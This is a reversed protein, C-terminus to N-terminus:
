LDPCTILAHITLNLSILENKYYIFGYQYDMLFAGFTCLTYQKLKILLYMFYIVNSSIKGKEMRNRRKPVGKEVICFISINSIISIISIRINFFVFTIKCIKYIKIVIAVLNTKAYWLIHVVKNVSGDINQGFHIQNFNKWCNLNIVYNIKSM